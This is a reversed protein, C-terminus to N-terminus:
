MVNPKVSVTISVIVWTKFSATMWVFHGMFRICTGLSPTCLTLPICKWVNYLKMENQNGILVRKPFEMAEVYGTPLRVSFQLMARPHSVCSNRYCDRQDHEIIEMLRSINTAPKM